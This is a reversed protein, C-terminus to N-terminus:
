VQLFWKVGDKLEVAVDGRDILYNLHSMSEGVAMIRNNNKIESKFITSFTDVVRVPTRCCELLRELRTEHEEILADLRDHAGRFPKGHSPLVLVDEPVRSKIKKLSDLWEALPNALPETPWVGVNPSITPLVQDGAILLNREADFFSAHRPSHGSGTVVEWRTNGTSVHHGDTLRRYSEPLPTVFRGFFGFARVYDDLQEESLGAARYFEVGEAPAVRGTDAVLIRCLLYEDRTM